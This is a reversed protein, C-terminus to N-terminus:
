SRTRIRGYLARTRGRIWRWGRSLFGLGQVVVNGLDDPGVPYDALPDPEFPRAPNSRKAEDADGHATM